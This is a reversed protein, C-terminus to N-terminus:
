RAEGVEDAFPIAPMARATPGDLLRLQGADAEAVVMSGHGAVPCKPAGMALWRRTVRVQYGCGPHSCVVKLYRSGSGKGRSTGGRTGYGAGCPLRHRDDFFEAPVPDTAPPIAQLVTRLAPSITRWDALDYADPTARPRVLGVQRAAHRWAAGHGAEPALVHALEHLLVHCTEPPSLGGIAAIEVLPLPDVAEGGGWVRHLTSLGRRRPGSGFVLHVQSLADATAPFTACVARAVEALYDEHTVPHTRRM